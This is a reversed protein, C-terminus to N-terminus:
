GSAEVSQSSTPEQAVNQMVRQRVERIKLILMQKNPFLSNHQNQFTAIAQSSPYFGAQEQFLQLVLSRRQDLIRRLSGSKESGPTRPTRPSRGLASPSFEGSESFEKIKDTCFDPGFFRSGQQSASLPTNTGRPTGGV